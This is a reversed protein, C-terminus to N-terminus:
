CSVMAAKAAKASSHATKLWGKVSLGSAVYGVLESAADTEPIPGNEGDDIGATVECLTLMVAVLWFAVLASPYVICVLTGVAPPALAM